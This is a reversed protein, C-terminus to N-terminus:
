RVCALLDRAEDLTMSVVVVIRDHPDAIEFTVNDTEYNRDVALEVGHETTHTNRITM